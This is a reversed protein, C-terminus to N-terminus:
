FIDADSLGDDYTDLRAKQAQFVTQGSVPCLRIEKFTCVATKLTKTLFVESM